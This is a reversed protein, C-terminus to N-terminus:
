GPEGGAGGPHRRLTLVHVGLEQEGV